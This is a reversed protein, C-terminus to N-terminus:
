LTVPIRYDHEDLVYQDAAIARYLRLRAPEVVDRTTLPDEHGHSVSRRTFVELAESRGEEGVEHATASMYIGQGTGIAVTSDFIVISVDPRGELNQSHAAGPKSVWVFERYASHAFYVPSVWPRGDADATGLVMYLNADVIARGHMVLDETVNPAL